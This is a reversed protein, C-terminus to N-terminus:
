NELESKVLDAILIYRDPADGIFVFPYCTTITLVAHDTPSIITKDDKEVILIKMIEYTFTGASTQVILQDSIELQGLERFITDRHGSLVSNDNEGPMVSGAFHGIGKKLEDENTGHFIPMIQDLAPITLSGINEGEEPRIPYLIDNAQADSTSSILVPSDYITTTIPADKKGNIAVDKKETIPTSPPSSYIQTIAWIICSIGLILLGLSLLQSKKNM